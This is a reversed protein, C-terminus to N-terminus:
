PAGPSAVFAKALAEVVDDSSVEPFHRYYQGVAAFFRPAVLCVVDDTIRALDALTSPPGVPVALVVDAAGLARAVLCAARATAGTAIGDDVVLATRGSLDLRPRVARFQRVRQELEARESLEVARLDATSVGSGRVVEPNLVRVGGEGVAGMALEPQEPLGLKRVVIADLPAGLGIAVEYGVMVGGRPLGLVVVDARRYGDLAAALQRGADHRDRFTVM